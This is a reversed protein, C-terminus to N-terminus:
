HVSHCYIGAAKAGIIGAIWSLAEVAPDSLEALRLYFAADKGLGTGALIGAIDCRSFLHNDYDALWQAETECKHRNAYYARSGARAQAACWRINYTLARKSCAGTGIGGKGCYGCSGQSACPAAVATHVSGSGGPSGPGPGGVGSAGGVGSPGGVDPPGGRLPYSVFTPHSSRPTPAACATGEGFIRQITCNVGRVVQSGLAPASSAVIAIVVTAVLAVAAWEAVAQGRSESARQRLKRTAEM